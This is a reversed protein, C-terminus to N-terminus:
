ECSLRSIGTPRSDIPRRLGGRFVTRQGASTALGSQEECSNCGSVDSHGNSVRPFNLGPIRVVQLDGGETRPLEPLAAPYGSSIRTWYGRGPLPIQSRRCANALGVGSIGIRDAIANIPTSWVMNFLERRGFQHEHRVLKREDQGSRSMEVATKSNPPPRYHGLATSLSPEITSQTSLLTDESKRMLRNSATLKRREASVKEVSKRVREEDPHVYSLFMAVTKHGTMAMGDKIPVGSNAIETAARHRAAHTWQHM